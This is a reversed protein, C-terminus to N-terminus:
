FCSRTTQHRLKSSNKAFPTLEPAVQGPVFNGLKSLGSWAIKLSQKKFLELVLASRPITYVATPYAKVLVPKPSFDSKRYISFINEFFTQLLSM